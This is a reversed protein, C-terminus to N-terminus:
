PTIIVPFYAISFAPIFIGPNYGLSPNAAILPLLKKVPILAIIHWSTSFSNFYASIAHAMVKSASFALKFGYWGLNCSILPNLPATLHADVM